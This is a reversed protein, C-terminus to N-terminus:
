PGCCLPPHHLLGDLASLPAHESVTYKGRVRHNLVALPSACQAYRTDQVQAFLTYNGSKLNSLGLPSACKGWPAKPPNSKPRQVPTSGTSSPPILACFLTQTPASPSALPISISSRNSYAPPPPDAYVDPMLSAWCLFFLVPKRPQVVMQVLPETKQHRVGVERMRDVWKRTHAGM